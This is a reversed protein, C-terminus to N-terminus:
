VWPEWREKMAAIAADPVSHVSGHNGEVTIVTLPVGFEQALDSYPAIEWRRTFTNAVVVNRGQFLALRAKKQCAAHCSPLRAPDFAYNGDADVMFEDAECRIYGAAELQRAFTSKGSGPLGRVIILNM